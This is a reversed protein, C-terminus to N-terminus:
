TTPVHRQRGDRRTAAPQLLPHGRGLVGECAVHWVGNAVVLLTRLDNSHVCM